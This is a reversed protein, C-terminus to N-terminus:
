KKILSQQNPEGNKTKTIRISDIITEIKGLKENEYPEMNCSEFNAVIGLVFGGIAMILTIWRTQELFKSNSIDSELKDWEVLFKKGKLTIILYINDIKPADGVDQIFRKPNKFTEAPGNTNIEDIIRKRSPSEEVYEEKILELIARKITGIDKTGKVTKLTALFTNIPIEETSHGIKNLEYLIKYRIDSNLKSM